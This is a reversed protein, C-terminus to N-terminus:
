ADGDVAAAAALLKGVTNMSLATTKLLHALGKNAAITEQLESEFTDAYDQLGWAAWRTLRTNAPVSIVTDFLASPPWTSVSLEFMKWVLQDINLGAAESISNQMALGLLYSSFGNVTLAPQLGKETITTTFDFRELNM